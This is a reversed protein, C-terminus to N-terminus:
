RTYEDVPLNTFPDPWGVRQLGQLNIEAAKHKDRKRWWAPETEKEIKHRCACLENILKELHPRINDQNLCRDLRQWLANM